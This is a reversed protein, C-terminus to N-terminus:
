CDVGGWVRKPKFSCTVGPNPHLLNVNGDACSCNRRSCLLDPGAVTIGASLMSPLEGTSFVEVAVSGAESASVM